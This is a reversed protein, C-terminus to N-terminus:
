LAEKIKLLYQRSVPVPEEFGKISLWHNNNYRVLKEIYHLNVICIRHCRLFNSYQKIQLEINKLTNRILKKKYNDGEKNLITELLLLNGIRDKEYDYEELKFGYQTVDFKAGQSFIHEKQLDNYKLLTIDQNSYKYLIYKVSANRFINVNLSKKFNYDNMFTEIFNILEAKLEDIGYTKEIIKSSLDYMNWRPNTNKLKYVRLEVKELLDILPELKEQEYLRVLLPYM